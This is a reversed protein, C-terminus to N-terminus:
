AVEKRDFMAKFSCVDSIHVGVEYTESDITELSLGDEIDVSHNPDITFVMQKFQRHGNVPLYERGVKLLHENLLSCKKDSIEM